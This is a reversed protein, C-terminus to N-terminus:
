EEDSFNLTAGLRVLSSIAACAGVPAAHWLPTRCFRDKYDVQRVFTAHYTEVISQLEQDQNHSTNRKDIAELIFEIQDPNDSVTARHVLTVDTTNRQTLYAFPEKAPAFPSILQLCPVQKERPAYAAALHLPTELLGDTRANIFEELTPESAPHQLICRIASQHGMLAAM